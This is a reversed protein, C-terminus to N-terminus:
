FVIRDKLLDVVFGLLNEVGNDLLLSLKQVKSNAVIKMKMKRRTTLQLIQRMLLQIKWKQSTQNM